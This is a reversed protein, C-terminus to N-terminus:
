PENLGGKGLGRESCPRGDEIKAAARPSMRKQKGAGPVVHGGDINISPPQAFETLSCRRQRATARNGAYERVAGTRERKPIASKVQHENHIEHRRTEDSFKRAHQAM